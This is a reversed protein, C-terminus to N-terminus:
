KARADAEASRPGEGISNVASVTYYYHIGKSTAADVYSVVNGVEFLFTETGSATSRYIRYKTIASGGNSTPALWSLSVGRSPNPKASLNRPAGPVATPTASASASTPGMGIANSARVTFSYTTGNTLGGITCGTTAVTCTAGGPSAIATYGTIASGGNSIPATWALVVSANGATATLGTPAGPVTAPTASASTSAPGTGVANTATVTFTYATGNTLGGITCGTTATTCTASGPSATATYGTIASGGNSAPASWALVVQANGPTATLGAPAGPVTAPTASASASAPGAGVANSAKVTFTYATGNTLGAITCGLTTVTCTAGGPSATATYGTIAGGGNSAPALWTLVVQGNGPTATLGTPAGPVTAPTASASASAPGTGVANTATVVFTYTTGNTLGGITCGLTTVTCTAGGPTATATYSTIPSGGNSGPVTWTLVVQGNGPTATLATPAGPVTPPPTSVGGGLFLGSLVANSGATRDVTILVSGGAPVNIPFHIWAGNVFSGAALGVTRRGQGDDLGVNEGRGLSDWDVAYAHLNGTYATSFNLRVRVQGLDHWTAARRETQSPSQLGRVDTTPSAWTFRSAQEIALSVGAPLGLLDTNNTNWNALVYGDAGYNGVWNGQLGPLDVTPPPPPPPPTGGGGLFLGSLVANGGATRDVSILVSGGAPVKIPFHVWAGNVFSGAALGVTRPGQGDDVSVSEGRPGYTDWDVAYAHLNGTYATSFNLRVRVQGLDHWTAARRETQSPSQLARVDTTPSAWTYRSAQEISLSVGAPLGVLDTNNNTNWNALVYGDAGYNGVWNGQLGPLDVTPSPPPPPPTGGGGLFLGALVATNGATKNAVISVSGGAPVNIPVHIWGGPIFSSSLRVTRPGSGDNITVDEYRNGQYADWDLAYLHLTGSYAVGFNLRLRLQSLDYWTQSQRGTGTPSTLARVDSTPSAWTYRAGQELTLSVGAPLVALDSGASNWNALVYGDQGYNGVWNGQVNPSTWVTVSDSATHGATDTATAKLTYAGGALGSANWTASWGDAGNSDTSALSGNVFFEVKVVGVDDTATAIVPVTGSVTAGDAPATVDVVPRRDTTGGEAAHLANVLPEAIGDPDNGWQGKGTCDVGGDADAFEGNPCEGTSKLLDEVDAPALGPYAALILAAVGAVHPSAMSTGMETAYGGGTWDSYIQTGPAIVDVTSGFNSFEALTDDCYWIFLWCGGLGGPEGDLDTLASVAIVEPFAAPIFTSADVTSNGAAAIYVIGAAVSHCIAERISGDTCTGISGVDGLSMNAVRVDNTPDGDTALDTLYDVACILNSWEGQGTDDLVKIPVLRAEPAAGIVGLGNAAAAVIGAVHTGHGHGDQPPGATICNKGLGIDLNPVLDPHTLDIGTDLIAVRVGNGTFGAAYASPETPHNARIRSIGTTITDELAKLKGNAVVSRVTPNRRLAAAANASGTFVFGHLAHRFILGAQGGAARALGAASRGADAGPKLAVIWSTAAAADNAGAAPLGAAANTASAAAPYPMALLMAFAIAVGFRIPGVRVGSM